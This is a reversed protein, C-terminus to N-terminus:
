VEIRETFQRDVVTETKIGGRPGITVKTVALMFDIENGEVWWTLRYAYNVDELRFISVDEHCGEGILFTLREQSHALAAQTLLDGENLTENRAAM